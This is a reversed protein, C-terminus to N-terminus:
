DEECTEERKKVILIVSSEFDSKFSDNLNKVFLFNEARFRMLIGFSTQFIPM